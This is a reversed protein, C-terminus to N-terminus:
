HAMRVLILGKKRRGAGDIMGRGYGWAPFLGCIRNGGKGFASGSRRLNPGAGLASQRTDFDVYGM